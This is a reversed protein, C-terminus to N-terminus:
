ANAARRLRWEFSGRCVVVGAADAVDVATTLRAKATQGRLLALLSELEPGGLSCRGVLPGRAPALFEVHAITGLPTVRDFQAEDTSAAIVAALGTADILAVLGSSHLSGIVNTMPERVQLGVEATAGGARLVKIGFLRNAPIPELLSAALRTADM